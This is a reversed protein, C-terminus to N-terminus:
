TPASRRVRRPHCRAGPAAGRGARHRERRAARARAQLAGPRGAHQEQVRDRQARRLPQRRARHRGGRHRVGLPLVRRRGLQPRDPQRRHGPARRGGPRRHRRRQRGHPGARGIRVFVRDALYASPAALPEGDVPVIGTGLKGTSEAILQELWAGLAALAPEIVFTLKDRGAAALAGIAVGLELGPNAADDTLCRSAMQQADDLLATLDLGQMAAPVLGVYTLASYRGGVDVPNLFYERFIDLHPIGEMSEGPDTIGVFSNGADSRHFMRTQKAAAQWFHALFALTETTTGSKTAIVHVTPKSDLEADAALVAQPDTSDLVSIRLGNQARPLVLSLVEPALSSGGMGCILADTCGEDALAAGM